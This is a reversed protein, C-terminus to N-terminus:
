SDKESASQRGGYPGREGGVCERGRGRFDRGRGKDRVYVMISQEILPASSVDVGTSVRMVRSFVATLTPISDRRLIQGRVQSGLAPSLGFLFKSLALDKRYGRLTAADTVTPQHMELEDILVKLEGYFKPM